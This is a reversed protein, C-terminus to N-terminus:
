IWARLEDGTLQGAIDFGERLARHLHDDVTGPCCIDIHLVGFGEGHQAGEQGIRHFRAEAQLQELLKFNRNYHVMTKATNLTIGEAGKAPNGVFWQADGANFALKSREAEDEDIAGDYRVASKGLADMLQDVDHTFRAWVIAPHELGELTELTVDLRPNTKGIMEIPEDSDAVAYGCTIQQLRLLRVLALSGDIILGSELELELETRLEEYMDAQRPSMDFYRKTYLQPPLDLVDVKLVRDSMNAIIEALEEVNKYRLLKDYGPDYGLETKCEDATFWEAFHQKFAYFNKMGMNAWLSPDIFRLQSYIDFPKAVPTGTLIRRYPAWRGSKIISKTRKAKPTKVHHSEDLIYLCRRRKLFKWVSKKGIESMFGQYGMCLWALGDHRLLQDFEAQHWKTRSKATQWYMTSIQNHLRDPLHAPIEDTIWNRHVGNPAVLVVADIKGQEYLYAATDIIPKSKGTGQEWLLAFAEMDRTTDFIRRQHDFPETKYEYTM